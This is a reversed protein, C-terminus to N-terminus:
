NELWEDYKEKNKNIYEPMEHLPIKTLSKSGNPITSKELVPTTDIM